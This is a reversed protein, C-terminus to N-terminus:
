KQSKEFKDSQKQSYRVAKSQMQSNTVIESQKQSRRVTDSKDSQRQSYIVAKSLMQSNHQKQATDDNKFENHQNYFFKLWFVLYHLKDTIQIFIIGWVDDLAQIPFCLTAM